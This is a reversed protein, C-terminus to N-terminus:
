GSSERNLSSRGPLSAPYRWCTTLTRTRSFPAKPARCIRPCSRPQRRRWRFRWPDRNFRRPHELPSAAAWTSCRPRTSLFCRAWSRRRNIIWIKTSSRATAQSSWRRPRRQWQSSTSTSTRSCDRHGVRTRFAGNGHYRCTEEAAEEASGPPGYYM